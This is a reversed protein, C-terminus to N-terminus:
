FIEKKFILNYEKCKNQLVTSLNPPGCYFMNIRGKQKRILNQLVVDWNPRGFHTRKKMGDILKSEEKSCIADLTLHLGIGRLDSQRKASTVYLHTELFTDNQKAQEIEMQSLMSIFWELSRQERTIWIFDVKKVALKEDGACLLEDGLKFDCNPCTAKAKRYRHILSQLISAFPTIGIGAAVLVAHEADFISQSPTGFPGDIYVKLRWLEDAGLGQATVRCHKKYMKLYGLINDENEIEDNDNSAKRMTSSLLLKSKASPSLVTDKIPSLQTNNNEDYKENPEFKFMVNMDLRRKSNKKNEDNPMVKVEVVQDDEANKIEEVKNVENKNDNNENNNNNELDLSVFSNAKNEIALKEEEKLMKIKNLRTQFEDNYLFISKQRQRAVQFHNDQLVVSMRTRMNSRLAPNNSMVTTNNNNNNAAPQVDFKSSSAYSYLRKTWNGCVKVHLWLFDSNEPASSISFPHWEYKAIVPINVYVYDGPKFHFKPPKRVVLHTVKSPLICAEAIFTDGFKNSTVQRHKLVKEIIYCMAPLLLWRWFSKGHLLMIVLWPITLLHFWYFLQFFGKNRVFPMAFLLIILLLFFDIVGTPFGLNVKHTFLATWYNIHSARCVNYLNILHALTHILTEVLIVIGIKKHIEIADDIPFFYCAGKERLWTLHKRLVLVLIFACNFNLSNGCMRACIVYPSQDIYSYLASAMCMVNIAVYLSWFIFQSRKNVIQEKCKHYWKRQKQSNNAFKPKIWVSTSLTLTKFISEHRKFASKLEELSITGSCDRDTEEFLIAALDDVTEEVDLSPSDELCCKLMMKMEPLSLVNDNDVDFVKFLFEMKEEQSGNVVVELGNIFQHLSLTGSNDKDMFAFLREALFPEKFNFNQIFDNLTVHLENKNYRDSKIMVHTFQFKLWSLWKSDSSMSALIELCTVLQLTNVRRSNPSVISALRYGFEVDNTINFFDQENIYIIENMNCYSNFKDVFWNMVQEEPESLLKSFCGTWEELSIAGNNDRDIIRFFARNLEVQQFMSCLEGPTIEKRKNSLIKETWLALSNAITENKEM